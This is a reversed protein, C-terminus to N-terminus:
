FRGRLRRPVTTVGHTTAVRRGSDALGCEAHGHDACLLAAAAIPKEIVRVGRCEEGGYWSHEVMLLAGGCGPDTADGRPSGGERRMGDDPGPEEIVIQEVGGILAPSCGTSGIAHSASPKSM